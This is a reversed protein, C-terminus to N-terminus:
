CMIRIYLLLEYNITIYICYVENQFLSNYQLFSFTNYKTKLLKENYKNENM